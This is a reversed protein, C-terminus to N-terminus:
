IDSVRVRVCATRTSAGIRDDDTGGPLRPRAGADVRVVSRGVSPTARATDDSRRELRNRGTGLERVCANMRGSDFKLSFGANFGCFLVHIVSLRM